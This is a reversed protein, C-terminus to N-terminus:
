RSFFLKYEDYACPFPSLTVFSCECSTKQSDPFKILQVIAHMPFQKCFTLHLPVTCDCIKGDHCFDLYEQCDTCM